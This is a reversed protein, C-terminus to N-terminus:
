LGNTIRIVADTVTLTIPALKNKADYLTCTFQVKIKVNADVVANANRREISIIKFTSNAQSGGATSYADDNINYSISVGNVQPNLFSTIYNWSGVANSSFFSNFYAKKDANEAYHVTGFQITISANPNISTLIGGVSGTPLGNLDPSTLTIDSAAWGSNSGSGQLEWDVQQSGLMGKLYYTGNVQADDGDVNVSGTNGTTGTSGTSGTTGTSGTAGTSGTSGTAGTSGTVGTSGGPGTIVGGIYNNPDKFDPEDKKCASLLTLSVLFLGTYKKM